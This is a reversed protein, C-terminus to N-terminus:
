NSKALETPPQCGNLQIVRLIATCLTIPSYNIILGIPEGFFPVCRGSHYLASYGIERTSRISAQNNRPARLHTIMAFQDDPECGPVPQGRDVIIAEKDLGAAQDGVPSRCDIRESARRIIDVTDEFPSFGASKGTCAGVLDLNTM